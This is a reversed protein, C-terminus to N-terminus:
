NELSNLFSLFVQQAEYPNIHFVKILRSIVEFLNENNTSKLHTYIDERDNLVNKENM